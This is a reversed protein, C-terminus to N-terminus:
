DPKQGSGGRKWWDADDSAEPPRPGNGPNANIWAAMANCAATLAMIRQEQLRRVDWMVHYRQEQAKLALVQLNARDAYLKALDQHGGRIVAAQLAVIIVLAAVVAVLMLILFIMM